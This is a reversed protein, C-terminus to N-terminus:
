LPQSPSELGRCHRAVAQAVERRLQDGIHHGYHENAQEFRNLGAMVLSLRGAEHQIRRWERHMCGMLMRRNPLGTLLDINAREMLLDQIYKTRLAARVRARLEVPDFPKTIYDVAGLDLGKVMDDPTTSASLFLVPIMCLHIDGKLIRCVDFGSLDPMEIDLLILDPIERRAVELGPIGGAARLIQLNEKSLRTKAVELADLDDDIVLVRIVFREERRM